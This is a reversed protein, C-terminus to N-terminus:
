ASKSLVRDKTNGGAENLTHVHRLCRFVFFSLIFWALLFNYLFWVLELQPVGM